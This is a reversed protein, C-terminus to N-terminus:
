DNDLEVTIQETIDVPEEFGKQFKVSLELGGGALVSRSTVTAIFTGSQYSCGKRTEPRSLRIEHEHGCGPCIHICVRIQDISTVKKLRKKVAM